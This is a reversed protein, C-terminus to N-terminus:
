MSVVGKSMMQTLAYFVLTTDHTTLHLARTMTAFSEFVYRAKDGEIASGKVAAQFQGFNRTLADVPVGLRNAVGLLYEFEGRAAAVTGVTVTMMSIFSQFKTIEDSLRVFAEAAGLALFKLNGLGSIAFDLPKGINKLGSELMSFAGGAKTTAKGVNDMTDAAKDGSATVKKFGADLTNLSATATSSDIDITFTTDAM